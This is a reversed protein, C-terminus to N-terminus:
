KCSFLLVFSRMCNSFSFFIGYWSNSNSEESKPSEPAVVSSSDDNEGDGDDTTFDDNDDDSSTEEGKLLNSESKNISVFLKLSKRKEKQACNLADEFDKTSLILVKDNEDDYYEIVFSEDNLFNFADQVFEKLLKYKSTASEDYHWRRVDEGFVIKVKM